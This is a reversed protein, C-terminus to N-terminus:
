IYIKENKGKKIVVDYGYKIIMNRKFEDSRMWSPKKEVINNNIHYKEYYYQQQKFYSKSLPKLNLHEELKVYLTDKHKSLFVFKDYHTDGKLYAKKLKNIFGEDDQYSNRLGKIKVIDDM